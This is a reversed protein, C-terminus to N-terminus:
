HIVVEPLLEDVDVYYYDPNGRNIYVKVERGNLADTPDFYLYRSRYVHLVGDEMVQCEVVNPHRGNMTVNTQTSVGTVKAMIYYGQDIAEQMGRRRSVDKSLFVGGILAFLLGEGGFIYMLIRLTEDAERTAFLAFGAALLIFLLGLPLFVWGVIGTSTWGFKRKKDM